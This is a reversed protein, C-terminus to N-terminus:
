GKLNDITEIVLPVHTYGPGGSMMVGVGAAEIIEEKSAGADLCKKVHLVICPTCQKGVAIGLAILEKTKVDLAGAAMTKGFLGAFGNLINGAEGKMKEVDGGFKKLFEKAEM